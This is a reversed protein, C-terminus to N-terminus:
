KVAEDYAKYMANFRMKEVESTTDFGLVSGLIEFLLVAAKKGPEVRAPYVDYEETDVFDGTVAMDTDYLLDGTSMDM